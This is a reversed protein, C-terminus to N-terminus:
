NVEQWSIVKGNKDPAASGVMFNCGEPRFYFELGLNRLKEITVISDKHSIHALDFIVTNLQTNEKILESLVEPADVRKGTAQWQTKLSKFLNQDSSLLCFVKPADTALNTKSSKLKRRQALFIAFNATADLIINSKFHKAYFLQMAGYFRKYYKADRVTSEGKFHIIGVKGAYYNTFGLQSITYCLDIDEGYMFYREDFGNAAQYVAKPMLMFAGALVPVAANEDKNTAAYYSRGNGFLKAFAVKPTPVNRKSEELFGGTGDLMKVGIAGCSKKAEAFTILNTFCDEPLITDPNLICIFEGSAERFAQNNAKAFGVNETNQIRKVGSFREAVMAMSDDSSANDIVIIEAELNQTAKFVSRLCLELHYRVNYNLIIVSLQM